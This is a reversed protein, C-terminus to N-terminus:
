IERVDGWIELQAGEGLHSLPSVPSIYRLYLSSTPSIYPLYLGSSSSRAKALTLYPLYLPSIASIYPLYLPSIPSIYRAVEDIFIVAPRAAAAQEFLARVQACPQAQTQTQTQPQPQALVPTM